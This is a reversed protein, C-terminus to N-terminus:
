IPVKKSVLFKKFKDFLKECEEYDAKLIAEFTISDIMGNYRATRSYQYIDKYM